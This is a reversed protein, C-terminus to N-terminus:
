LGKQNLFLMFDVLRCSYGWENDYWALLKVLNGNVKTQLSDFICSYPNGIIDTSVIEEESYQLVDKYNDRAEKEFAANVEEESTNKGVIATLDTLSGCPVPVRVAIGDLKGRLEPLINTTAKAAGTSTPVINVAAARARRLDKHPADVLHQDATYAHVTTMFAKEVAFNTHLIKVMPALCNTTCSAMSVLKDEKPNYTEENVKLVFQPIDSSKPPASMIVRKAGADLHKETDERTIFVGTSELVIDVNLNKWPLNEPLKESFTNIHRENVILADEKPEVTSPFMGYVSDYKLLQALTESDALDNIAVIEIDKNQLAARFTTRGIRGFGNIAVKVM